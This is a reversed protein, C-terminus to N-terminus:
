VLGTWSLSGFNVHSLIEFQGGVYVYQQLPCVGSALRWGGSALGKQKLGASLAMVPKQAPSANAFGNTRSMYKLSDGQRGVHGQPGM